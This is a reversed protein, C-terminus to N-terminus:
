PGGEDVALNPEARRLLSPRAQANRGQRRTSSPLDRLTERAAQIDAGEGRDVGFDGRRTRGGDGRAGLCPPKDGQRRLVLACRGTRHFGGAGLGRSISRPRVKGFAADSKLEACPQRSQVQSGTM